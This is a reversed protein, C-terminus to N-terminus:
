TNIATHTGRENSADLLRAIDDDTRLARRFGHYTPGVRLRTDIVREAFGADRPSAHKSLMLECPFTKQHGAWFKM